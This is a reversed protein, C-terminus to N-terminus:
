LDAAKFTDCVQLQGSDFGKTFWRVRQASSGHTFADPVVKQGRLKALADNGLRELANIGEEVDGPELRNKLQQTLNAWVGALCDAQLELRVSLKNDLDPNATTAQEVKGMIGLLQQVHHAVEHAVVYVRAFDGPAGYSRSLIDFWDLDLYIKRDLPCYFPGSAARAVDCATPYAGSFLVLKPEEYTRGFRKFVQGWIDETDALVRAIFKKLATPDRYVSRDRGAGGSRDGVGDSAAGGTLPDGPGQPRSPPRSPAGSAREPGAGEGAGSPGIALVLLLVPVLVLATLGVFWRGNGGEPGPNRM